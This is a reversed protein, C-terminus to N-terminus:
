VVAHQTLQLSDHHQSCSRPPCAPAQSLGPTNSATSHSSISTTQGEPTTRRPIAEFRGCRCQSGLRHGAHLRRSGPRRSGRPVQSPARRYPQGARPRPPSLSRACASMAHNLQRVTGDPEALLAPFHGASSYRVTSSRPDIIAWFVTTCDAGPILASFRDLACLVQAPGTNELLLARGRQAVARHGGGDAARARSRRRRRAPGRATEVADRRLGVARRDLAIGAVCLAALAQGLDTLAGGASAPPSAPVVVRGGTPM